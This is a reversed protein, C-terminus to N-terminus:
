EHNTETRKVVVKRGCGSCTPDYRMSPQLAGCSAQWRTDQWEYVCADDALAAALQVALEGLQHERELPPCAARIVEVAHAAVLQLRTQM